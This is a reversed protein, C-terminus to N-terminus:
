QAALDGLGPALIAHGEGSDGAARETLAQCGAVWGSCSPPAQTEWHSDAKGASEVRAGERGRSLM